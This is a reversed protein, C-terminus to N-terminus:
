RGITDPDIIGTFLALKEINLQQQELDAQLKNGTMMLGAITTGPITGGNALQIELQSSAQTILAFATAALHLEALEANKEKIDATLQVVAQITAQLKEPPAKELANKIQMLVDLQTLVSRVIAVQRELNVPSDAVDLNAPLVIGSANLGRLKAVFAAARADAQQKLAADDPKRRAATDARYIDQMDKFLAPRNSMFFENRAAANVLVSAGAANQAAFFVKTDSLARDQGAKAVNFRDGPANGVSARSVKFMEAFGDFAKWKSESLGAITGIATQETLDRSVYVKDGLDIFGGGPTFFGVSLRNMMVDLITNMTLSETPDTMGLFWQEFNIYSINSNQTDAETQAATSQLLFMMAFIKDYSIGITDLKDRTMNVDYLARAELVRVDSVEEGEANKYTYPVAILRPNPKLSGDANRGPMLSVDDADPTRLLEHFFKYGELAATFEDDIVANAQDEPLGTGFIISMVTEDLFSRIGQFLSINRNIVQVKQSWGYVISDYVYNRNVYNRHYDQIMNRVIETASGGSDFQKCLASSGLQTDDCQEYYKLLGLSNLSDKTLHVFSVSKSVPEHRKRALAKALDTTSVLNNRGINPVVARLDADQLGAASVEVLGTYAARLAQADYPGPGAYHMDIDAIYDMISSYNRGSLKKAAVDEPFEYNAKDTSAKFNHLLGFAHGLEHSLTSMIAQKFNLMLNKHPDADLKAAEKNIDSRAYSYCGPRNRTNREFKIAADLMESRRSLTQKTAEDLNGYQIFAKNLELEFEYPNLSAKRSVAIETLKKLFTQSNVAYDMKPAKVSNRYIQATLAKKLPGADKSKRMGKLALRIQEHNLQMAALSQDLAANVRATEAAVANVAAADAGEVPAPAPATKVVKQSAAAEKIADKKKNELEQEYALSIANRKLLIETQDFTNGSYIIVNASQITGSRPNAAPQAVGLLGNEASLEQFWIYNRDLDGLHGTGDDVEIEVYDGARELSTGRFAYRLTKNWEDIVQRTASLILERREPNTVQANGLGGVYYKLKKGNRFDHIIPMYKESGDRNMLTGNGTVRDALTFVGFNFAAQAMGSINQAFQTDSEARHKLFSIREVVNFNFQYTGGWYASNVDKVAVCDTTPNVTYSGALSYNLVGDQALRMDTDTVRLSSTAAFCAGGSYFALPSTSDPVTNRTWDIVAYEAKEKTTEEAKPVTLRGGSANTTTMRIYKVPFSMLEERDRPGQGTYTILSQQNRVVIRGDELEFKVIAMDGSTGTRGLFMNSAAEFTRRYYFEGQLDSLKVTSDPDLAGSVDVQRAAVNERIEVLGVSRSRDVDEFEIRSSAGGDVEALRASKYAVPVDAKLVLVCNPETARIYASVAADGCSIVEQNGAGNQLLRRQSENLQSSNTVEYVRMVDADLRTFVRTRADLFRMGISFRSQLEEASMLQNDIRDESYLQKLDQSQDANLGIVERSEPQPSLQIHTADKWDTRKLELVSTEEKLENKSRVVTGYGEIKYKFLPVLLAGPRQGSKIQDKEIVAARREADLAQARGPAPQSNRAQIKAETVTTAIAKEFPSLQDATPAIKYATVFQRDVSFTVKFAGTQQATLPLDAFMFKMRAPVSVDDASLLTQNEPDAALFSNEGSSSNESASNVKASYDSNDSIEGFERIAFVSTQQEEPLEAKRSKTCGAAVILAMLATLRIVSLTQKKM